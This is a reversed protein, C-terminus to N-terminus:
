ERQVAPLYVNMEGVVVFSAEAASAGNGAVDRVGGLVSLVYGGVALPQTPYAVIERSQSDYGIRLSVGTGGDRTLQVTASTVTSEDLAESFALRLAPGYATGAADSFLPRDDLAVVSGSVPMMATISPSQTDGTANVTVHVQAAVSETVGNSVRFTFADAGTFNASPTYTLNPPTGTLAGASPADVVSFTLPLDAADRGQLIVAVPTAYNTTVQQPYAVLPAIQNIVANTPTEEPVSPFYVTARNFIVTGSPLGGKLRVTYTVAGTSDADGKPGLEGVLWVLQRDEALYVHEGQVALTSEDFQAPLENVVYVGYARGAGENEYTVTYTVQQGPLLDGAPGYLANPDKAVLLGVDSCRDAGGTCTVDEARGIPLYGNLRTVGGETCDKCGGKENYGAVCRQGSATCYVRGPTGYAGTTGNCEEKICARVGFIGLTNDVSWRVQGATCCNSSPDDDCAKNCDKIEKTIQYIEYGTSLASGTGGTALTWFFVKAVKTTVVKFTIKKGVCNIKCRAPTCAAAETASVDGEADRWDGWFVREATSLTMTMGGTTDELVLSDAGATTALVLGGSVTLTRVSRKDSGQMVAGDIVDGDSFQERAAGLFTFGQGLSRTYLTNLEANAARLADFQGQTLTQRSLMTVPAYDLYESLDVDASPYNAAAFLTLTGDQYDRPLGWQFRVRASVLAASGPALNGLKWFVQHREPWYVGGQSSDVYDAARPLQVVVVASNVTQTLLNLVQVGYETTQGPSVLSPGGTSVFVDGSVPAAVQDASTLWPDFLVNDGVNEGQGNPNSAANFPGSADGWWNYRADLAPANWNVVGEEANNHISNNRFVPPKTWVWNLYVGKKASHHIECNQIWIPSPSVESHGDASIMANVNGSGGYGVECYRLLLAAQDYAASIGSWAGPTEAGGLFRIPHAASGLAYLAGGAAIHIGVPSDYINKDFYFTTSPQISLLADKAINIHGNVRVAVGAEGLNWQRAGGVDCGPLHIVDKGNGVASLNAATISGNCYWTVAADVNNNLTVNELKLDVNHAGPFTIGKRREPNDGSGGNNSIDLNTLTAFISSASTSGSVGSWGNRSISGGDWELHLTSNHRTDLYLGTQGNDVASVDEFIPSITADAPSVIYVGERDNHHVTCNRVQADDTDVELGGM